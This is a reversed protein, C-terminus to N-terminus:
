AISKFESRTRREGREPRTNEKKFDWDGIARSVALIGQVRGDHVFGGGSEIREYEEENDPKHDKSM